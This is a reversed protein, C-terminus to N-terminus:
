NWWSGRKDSSYVVYGYLGEAFARTAACSRLFFVGCSQCPYVSRKAKQYRQELWPRMCTIEHYPQVTLNASYIDSLGQLDFSRDWSRFPDQLWAVDADSFVLHFELRLLERVYFWKLAEDRAEAKGRPVAAHGMADVFCPISANRALACTAEDTGILLTNAARHRLNGAWQRLFLLQMKAADMAVTTLVLERSATAVRAAVRRLDDESRLVGLPSASLALLQVLRRATQHVRAQGPVDSANWTTARGSRVIARARKKAAASGM